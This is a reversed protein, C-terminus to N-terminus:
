PAKPDPVDPVLRIVQEGARRMNYRERALKELAEPDQRLAELRAELAAAEQELAAAESALRGRERDLRVYETLGDEGFLSILAVLLVALVLLGMMPARRGRRVEKPRWFGTDQGPRVEKDSM